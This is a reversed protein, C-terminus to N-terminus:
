GTPWRACGTSSASTASARSGASGTSSTWSRTAFARTSRSPADAPRAADRLGPGDLHVVRGRRPLRAAHRLALLAPLPAHVARPPLLLRADRPGRHDARRHRERRARDPRRLGGRLPRGRGAARDRAARAVQGAPLGGRRLRARHARHRHGRGRRGRGVARGPARLGTPGDADTGKEFAAAVADLDDYPGRYRWGVLEAGSKEEVVQFDGRLATKLTGRGLWFLDDGQRVKVYRLEPGVAAAVNSTLTWPTTTWVLLAEGPRDVLPLRVTLGPDERDAYGENM